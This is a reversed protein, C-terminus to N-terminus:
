TSTLPPQRDRFWTTSVCRSEPKRITRSTNTPDVGGVLLRDVQSAVQRAEKSRRRLDSSCPSPRSSAAEPPVIAEPDIEMSELDDIPVGRTLFRFAFSRPDGATNQYNVRLM